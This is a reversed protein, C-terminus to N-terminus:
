NDAGKHGYRASLIASWVDSQAGGGIAMGGCGSFSQRDSPEGLGASSQLGVWGDSVMLDWCNTRERLSIQVYVGESATFPLKVMQSQGRSGHMHRVDCTWIHRTLEM